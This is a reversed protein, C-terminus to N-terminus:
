IKQGIGGLAYLHISDVVEQSLPGLRGSLVRDSRSYYQSLRQEGTTGLIVPGRPRRESVEALPRPEVPGPCYGFNCQAVLQYDKAALLAAARVHRVLVAHNLLHRRRVLM